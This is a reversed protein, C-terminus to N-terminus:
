NRKYNNQNSENIENNNQVEYNGFINKFQKGSIRMDSYYNNLYPNECNNYYRFNHDIENLIEITRKDENGEYFVDIVRSFIDEYNLYKNAEKFLTMCSLLKQADIFDLIDDIKKKGGHEILAKLINILNNRLYDNTLYEKAEDLSKIEYNRTFYSYGLGAIQPFIFWMWHSIKKGAKIEGYAIPYIKKQIEVFNKM